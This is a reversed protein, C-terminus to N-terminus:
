IFELIKIGRLPASGYFLYVPLSLRISGMKKKLHCIPYVGSTLRCISYVGLIELYRWSSWLEVMRLFYVGM